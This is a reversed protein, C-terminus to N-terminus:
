RRSHMLVDWYANIRGQRHEGLLGPMSDVLTVARSQGPESCRDFCSRIFVSSDETPLAAVNAAFEAWRGEQFLYQEVNSTYFVSVAGSRERLWGGVARLTRSGAFNGVLPVIRNALQMNRVQQYAEESALYSRSVGQQDSAMQLDQFSPYRARGSNGTSAYALEPGGVFFRAYVSSVGDLDAPELPLQRARTLHDLIARLNAEFLLRDSREISFAGFLQTGSSSAGLGAPRRRSFLRAVFDARDPSLEFLAKYMLHLQLNGRRIDPIFALAPQFAAIYTFNQDPGVGLYAGGPRVERRVRPIVAQFEDENSVLNESRFFGAPESFDQVIQWFERDSLRTPLPQRPELRAPAVSLGGALALGLLLLRGRAPPRDASALALPGWRM